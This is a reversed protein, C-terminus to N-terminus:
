IVIVYATQFMNFGIKLHTSLPDGWLGHGYGNPYLISHTLSLSGEWEFM